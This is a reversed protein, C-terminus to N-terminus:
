HRTLPRMTRLISSPLKYYIKRLTPRLYRLYLAGYIKGKLTMPLYYDRTMVQGSSWSEKHPDYPVMLDFRTMGDALAQRQSLDMHLRGPSLDTHSNV